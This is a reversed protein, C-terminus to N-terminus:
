GRSPALNRLKELKTAAQLQTWSLGIKLVESDCGDISAAAAAVAFDVSIRVTNQAARLTQEPTPLKFSM